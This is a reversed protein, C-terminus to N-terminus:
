AAELRPRLNGSLFTDVVGFVGEIAWEFVPELVRACLIASPKRSGTRSIAQNMAMKSQFQSRPGIL